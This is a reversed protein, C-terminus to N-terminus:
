NKEGLCGGKFFDMRFIVFINLLFFKMNEFIGNVVLIIFDM